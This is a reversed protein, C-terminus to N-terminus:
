FQGFLNSALSGLPGSLSWCWTTSKGQARRTYPLPNIPQRHNRLSLHGRYRACRCRRGPRARFPGPRLGGVLGTGTQVVLPAPGMHRRWSCGASGNVADNPTGGPIKLRPSQRWRRGPAHAAPLGTKEQTVVPM